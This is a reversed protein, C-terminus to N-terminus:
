IIFIQVIKIIQVLKMSFLLQRSYKKKKNIKYKYYNISFVKENAQMKILCEAQKM